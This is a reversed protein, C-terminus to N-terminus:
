AISLPGDLRTQDGLARELVDLLPGLALIVLAVLASREAGVLQRAKYGFALRAVAGGRHQGLGLAKGAPGLCM